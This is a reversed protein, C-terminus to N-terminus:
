QLYIQISKYPLFHYGSRTVFTVLGWEKRCHTIALLSREKHQLSGDMIVMRTVEPETVARFMAIAMKTVETVAPSTITVIYKVTGDSSFM